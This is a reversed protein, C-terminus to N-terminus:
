HMHTLTHTCTHTRVRAHAAIKGGHYFWYRINLFSNFRLEKGKETGRKFEPLGEQGERTSPASSFMQFSFSAKLTSM